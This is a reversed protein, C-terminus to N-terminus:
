CPIESSLMYIHEIPSKCIGCLNNKKLSTSLCNTCYPHGCNTDIKCSNDELCICCSQNTDVANTGYIQIESPFHKFIENATQKKHNLKSVLDDIRLQLDQDKIKNALVSDSIKQLPLPYIEGILSYPITKKDIYVRKLLSSIEEKNLHSTHKKQRRTFYPISKKFIIRSMKLSLNELFELDEDSLIENDFRLRHHLKNLETCKMVNHQPSKCFGCVM